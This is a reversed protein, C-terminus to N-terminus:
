EAPQVLERMSVWGTPSQASRVYVVMARGRAMTATGGEKPVVRLTFTSVEIATDGLILMSEVQNEAFMMQVTKFTETLAARLAERGVTHSSPSLWKEVNPHHYKMITDVDSAAFAARIADGTRILAARDANSSTNPPFPSGAVVAPVAFFLLAIRFSTMPSSYCM